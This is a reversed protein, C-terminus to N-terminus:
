RFLRPFSPSVKWRWLFEDEKPPIVRKPVLLPEGDRDHDTSLSTASKEEQKPAELFITLPKAALGVSTVAPIGKKLSRLRLTFRPGIEQLAVKETTRFAYSPWILSMM